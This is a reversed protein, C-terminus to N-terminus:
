SLLLTVTFISDTSLKSGIANKSDSGLIKCIGCVEMGIVVVILVYSIVFLSNDVFVVFIAFYGVFFDKEEKLCIKVVALKGEGSDRSNGESGRWCPTEQTGCNQCSPPGTGAKEPKILRIEGDTDVETPRQRGKFLLAEGQLDRRWAPTERAGCNSCRYIEGAKIIKGSNTRPSTSLPNSKNSYLVSTPSHNLKISSSNSSNNSFPSSNIMIEDTPKNQTNDDSKTPSKDSAHDTIKTFNKEKPKLLGNNNLKIFEEDLQNQQQLPSLTNIPSQTCTTTTTPYSSQIINCINLLSLSNDSKNKSSTSPSPSSTLLSLVKGSKKISDPIEKTEDKDIQREECSEIIPNKEQATQEINESM